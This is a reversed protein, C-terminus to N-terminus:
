KACFFLEAFGLFLERLLPRPKRLKSSLKVKESGAKDAPAQQKLVEEQRRRMFGVEAAPLICHARSTRSRVPGTKYPSEPEVNGAETGHTRPLERLKKVKCFM